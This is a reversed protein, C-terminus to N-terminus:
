DAEDEVPLPDDLLYHGPDHSRTKVLPIRSRRMKEPLLDYWKIIAQTTADQRV